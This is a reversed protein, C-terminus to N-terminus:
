LMIDQKKKMTVYLTADCGKKSQFNVQSVEKDKSYKQYLPDLSIYEFATEATMEDLTYRPIKLKM